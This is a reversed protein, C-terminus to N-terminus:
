VTKIFPITQNIRLHRRCAMQNYLKSAYVSAAISLEDDAQHLLIFFFLYATHIHIQSNYQQERTLLTKKNSQFLNVTINNCM